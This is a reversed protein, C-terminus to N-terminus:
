RKSGNPSQIIPSPISKRENIDISKKGIKSNKMIYSDIQFYDIQDASIMNNFYKWENMVNENNSAYPAVSKEFFVKFSEVLKKENM